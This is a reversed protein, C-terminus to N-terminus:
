ESENKKVGIVQGFANTEQQELLEDLNEIPPVTLNIAVRTYGHNMGIERGADVLTQPERGDLPRDTSIQTEGYRWDQDEAEKFSFMVYYDM